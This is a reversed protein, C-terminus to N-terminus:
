SVKLSDNALFHGLHFAREEAKLLLGEYLYRTARDGLSEAQAAQSRLVGILGQEAILDNQVMQRALFAGDPEPTFCTLDAIKHPSAVPVGGLGSLREGIEHAHEQVDKYSENFFEHLMNFEAGEVVFHHKQYQLFLTQLSALVVNLGEIVPLTIETGLGVPNEQIQDLAQVLTETTSM